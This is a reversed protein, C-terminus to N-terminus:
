YKSCLETQNRQINLYWVQIIGDTPGIIGQIINEGTTSKFNEKLFGEIDRTNTITYESNKRTLSGRKGEQENDEEIDSIETM